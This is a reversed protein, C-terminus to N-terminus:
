MKVLPLLHLLHLPPPPLFVLINLITPSLFDLIFDFFFLIVKEVKETEEHV